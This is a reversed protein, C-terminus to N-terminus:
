SLRLGNDDGLVPTLNLDMTSITDIRPTTKRSVLALIEKLTKGRRLLRIITVVVRRQELTVPTRIKDVLHESVVRHSRFLPRMTTVGLLTGHVVIGYYALGLLTSDDMPNKALLYLLFASPTYYLDGKEGELCIQKLTNEGLAYTM